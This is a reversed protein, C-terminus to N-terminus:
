LRRKSSRLGAHSPPTQRLAPRGAERARRKADVGIAAVADVATLAHGAATMM